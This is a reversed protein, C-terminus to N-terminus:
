GLYYYADEVENVHYGSAAAIESFIATAAALREHLGLTQVALLVQSVRGRWDGLADLAAAVPALRLYRVATAISYYDTKRAWGSTHHWECPGVALLAARAQRRTVGASSAVASIARSLPLKGEAEAEAARKSKSWGIYGSNKRIM